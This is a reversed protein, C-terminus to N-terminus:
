TTHTKKPGVTIHHSSWSNCTSPMSRPRFSPKKDSRRLRSSAKRSPDLLASARNSHRDLCRGEIRECGLRAASTSKVIHSPSPARAQTTTSATETARTAGLPRPLRLLRAAWLPFVLPHHIAVSIPFIVGSDSKAGTRYNPLARPNVREVLSM